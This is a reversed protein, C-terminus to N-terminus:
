QKFHIYYILSSRYYYIFSIFGVKVDPSIQCNLIYSMHCEKKTIKLKTTDDEEEEEEEEEKREEIEEEEEEKTTTTTTTTTNNTEHATSSSSSSSPNRTSEQREYALTALM